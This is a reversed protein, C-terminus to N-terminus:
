YRSNDVKCLCAPWDNSAQRVKMERLPDDPIIWYAIPYCKFIFEDIETENIIKSEVIQSMMSYRFIAGNSASKLEAIQENSGTYAVWEGKTTM